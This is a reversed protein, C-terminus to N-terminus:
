RRMVHIWHRDEQKEYSKERLSRKIRRCYSNVTSGDINAYGAVFEYGYPCRGREYNLDFYKKM